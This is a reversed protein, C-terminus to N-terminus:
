FYVEVSSPKIAWGPQQVIEGGCECCRLTDTAEPSYDYRSDLWTQVRHGCYQCFSRTDHQRKDHDHLGMAMRFVLRNMAHAIVKRRDCAYWPTANLERAMRQFQKILRRAKRNQPDRKGYALANAAVLGPNGDSLLRDAIYKDRNWEYM